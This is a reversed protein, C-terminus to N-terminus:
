SKKKPKSKPKKKAAPRAPRRAKRGTTEEWRDVIVDCYGPDIEMAVCRRGLLEAAILTTGSGAFPDYVFEGPLLHNAIGPMATALAKQNAHDWKEEDSGGHTRKPSPASIVTSQDRKGHFAVKSGKRVAIWCPEHQWHYFSRGMAFQQKDWMLMQRREFGIAELGAIVADTFRDAHWVYAVVASPCLEYAASWDALRDGDTSERAEDSDLYGPEASSFRGPPLGPVAKRNGKLDQVRKSNLGAGDRWSPDFEVGYPPDTSILLPAHDALLKETDQTSLASGCLLRHDGLQILDGRKTKPRKPKKPAPPDDVDRPSPSTQASAQVLVADFDQQTFGSGDVDDFSQLLEALEPFDWEARDSAVNDTLSLKAAEEDSMGARWVVAIREYDEEKAAFYTHNGKLIEKTETRVVIPIYQGFRRLSERVFDVDGRRPNKKLPKIEDLRVMETKLEAPTRSSSM